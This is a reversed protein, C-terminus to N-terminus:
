EADFDGVEKIKLVEAGADLILKRCVSFDFRENNYEDRASQLLTMIEVVEEQNMLLKNYSNLKRLLNDFLKDVNIEKHDNATAPDVCLLVFFISSRLSKKFAAIQESSFTGYITDM